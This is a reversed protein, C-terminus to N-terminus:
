DKGLRWCRSCDSSCVGLERLKSAIAKFDKAAIDFLRALKWVDAVAAPCPMNSSVEAQTSEGAM